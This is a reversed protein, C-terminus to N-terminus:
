WEIERLVVFRRILVVSSERPADSPEPCARLPTPQGLPVALLFPKENGM